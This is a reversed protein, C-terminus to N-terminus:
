VVTKRKSNEMRTQFTEVITNSIFFKTKKFFTYGSYVKFYKQLQVEAKVNQKMVLEAHVKTKPKHKVWKNM